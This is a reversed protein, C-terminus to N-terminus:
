VRVDPLRGDDGYLHHAPHCVVDAVNRRIGIPLTGSDDDVARIEFEGERTRM